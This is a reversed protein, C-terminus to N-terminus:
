EGIEKIMKAMASAKQNALADAANQEKAKQEKIKAARAQKLAKEDEASAQVLVRVKLLLKLDNESLHPFELVEGRDVVQRYLASKPNKYRIPKLVLYKQAM